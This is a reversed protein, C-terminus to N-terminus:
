KAGMMTRVGNMNKSYADMFVDVIYRQGDFSSNQTVAAQTGTRNVVNVTVPTSNQNLTINKSDKDILGTKEFTHKDLPLIVEDSKGEGIIGLTPGTIKAGDAFMPINSFTYSSSDGYDLGSIGYNSLNTLYGSSSSSSGGGFLTNLWGGAIKSSINQALLKAMTNEVTKGFNLVAKEASETGSLFSSIDDTMGSYFSDTATAIDAYISSHAADWIKVYESALQKQGDKNLDKIEGQPNNNLNDIVSGYDGNDSLNNIMERHSKEIEQNRKKAAQSVKANYWDDIALQATYDSKSQAISKLKEKREEKLKTVTINYESNAEATYDDFVQAWTNSTDEKVETWALKWKDTLKKKLVEDYKDLETKLGEINVGAVQLKAIEADKNAVDTMIKAMGSSYTTASDENITGQMSDALKRAQENAKKLEQLRKQKEKEVSKETDNSWYTNSSDYLGMVKKVYKQTEEYPPIGGYKKVAQGGANYGAAALSYDGYTKYLGAAYQASGMINEDPDYPNKVGMEAATGPMLQGLGMAGAGSTANPDGNSETLIISALFNPDIGYTNAAYEIENAYPQLNPNDLLSYHLTQPIKAKKTKKKGVETTDYKNQLADEMQQVQNTANGTDLLASYDGNEFAEQMERRKKQKEDYSYQAKYEEPSLEQLHYGIGAYGYQMDANAKELNGSNFDQFFQASKIPTDTAKDEVRKYYKGNKYYVESNKDYSKIKDITDYYDWAAKLAIGAAVAVGLWGGVLTWLVSKFKGAATAATTLGATTATSTAVAAEGSAVTAGTTAIISETLVGQAAKGETAAAVTKAGTLSATTGEEALAIETSLISQALELQGMKAMECATVYREGMITVFQSQEEISLNTEAIAAAISLQGDRIAINMATVIESTRSSIATQEEQAIVAKRIANALETQGMVAATAATEMTAGALKAQIEQEAAAVTVAKQAEAAKIAAATEQAYQTETTLIAKGLVTQATTAGATVAQIDTYITRAKGIIMWGAIAGTVLEANEAAFKLGSGLLKVAPVAVVSVDKGIEGIQQGFIIATQSAEQLDTVIEPNIIVKGSKEDIKVFEDALTSLEKTAAAFIPSLGMGGVRAISEKFHNIRGELSNLYNNNAEIEGKLRDSLFQYLGGVSSRADEIDKNSIGLLSGLKTRQINKGTILDSIDRMLTTKQLGMAKGVTTLTSALELTQSITMKANLSAPLMARFVDSIEKSSSGTKIAADSLQIMLDKSMSLAQGWSLTQGNLTTMSILTGAMSISGTEMTKYFEEAAGISNQLADGIGNIGMIALSYGAANSLVSNLMSSQNAFSEMSKAAEQASNNVKNFAATAMDKGIIQIQVDNSGM